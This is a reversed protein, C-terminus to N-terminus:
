RTVEGLEPRSRRARERRFEKRLALDFPDPDDADPRLRAELEIRDEAYPLRLADDGEPPGLRLRAAKRLLHLLTVVDSHERRLRDFLRHASGVDDDRHRGSPLRENVGFPDDGPHVDRGDTRITRVLL